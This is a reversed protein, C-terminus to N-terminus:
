HFNGSVQKRYWEIGATFIQAVTSKHIRFERAKESYAEIRKINLEGKYPNPLQGNVDSKVINKVQMEKLHELIQDPSTDFWYFQKGFIKITVYHRRMLEFDEHTFKM